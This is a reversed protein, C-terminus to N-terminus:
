SFAQSNFAILSILISKPSIIPFFLVCCFGRADSLSNVLIVSVEWWGNFPIEPPKLDTTKAHLHSSSVLLKQITWYIAELPLKSMAAIALIDDAPAAIVIKIVHM